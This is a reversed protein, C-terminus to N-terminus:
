RSINSELNVSKFPHFQAHLASFALLFFGFNIDIKANCSQLDYGAFGSFIDSM